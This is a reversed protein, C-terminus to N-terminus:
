QDGTSGQDDGGQDDGQDDGDGPPNPADGTPPKPADGTPPPPADGFQPFLGQGEIRCPHDRTPQAGAPCLPLICPVQATPLQGAACPALPKNLAWPVQPTPLQGEACPPPLCPADRTPVQGPQCAPYPGAPTGEAQASGCALTLLAAATVLTALRKM